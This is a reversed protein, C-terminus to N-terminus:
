LKPAGQRAYTKEHVSQCKVCRAAGPVARLRALAIELGCEGCLGYGGADLRAQAAELERLESLDRSTEANDLDSLLDAVAEDATDVVPGALAGYSEERSRAVDGQIEALLAERRKAITQRL